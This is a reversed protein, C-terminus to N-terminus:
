IFESFHILLARKGQLDYLKTKNNGWYGVLWLKSSIFLEERKVVGEKIVKEIAEGIEGENQYIFACDIHRYGARIATEIANGTLGPFPDAM